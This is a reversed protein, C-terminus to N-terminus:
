KLRFSDGQILLVHSHHLVRDLVESAIMDDGFVHGNRSPRTPPSSCAAASTANSSSSSSCTRPRSELPLYGLEDVILLKPKAYYSIQDALKGEQQAKSLTSLLATATIFLVTHGAEVAARGLAFGRPADQRRRTPRLAPRNKPAPSSAAPPSSASSSPTSRPPASLSQTPYLLLGGVRSM